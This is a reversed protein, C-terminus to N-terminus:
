EAGKNLYEYGHETLNIVVHDTLIEELSSLKSMLDLLAFGAFVMGLANAFLLFAIILLM